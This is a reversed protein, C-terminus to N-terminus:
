ELAERVRRVDERLRELADRMEHEIPLFRDTNFFRRLPERADPDSGALLLLQRLREARAADLDARVVEVARPFPRTQHIVSLDSRFSSPMRELSNWDLDSFAGADVLRKHVWTAINSESQGFVYGVGTARPRDSPSLLVELDMGARLLASAPAFYASTSNPNQFAISHGRLEALGRIGSDRRVFIVSRYLAVGDRETAVLLKAASREVLWLGTGATETVWDVRGRRLYSAMQQADRAMLIRGERIGVDRMRPVIYDLLPRLQDYHRKPDDSIRGLVLTTDAAEVSRTSLLFSALALAHVCLRLSFRLFASCRTKGDEAGEVSGAGRRRHPQQPGRRPQEGPQPKM